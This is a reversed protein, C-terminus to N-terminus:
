KQFAYAPFKESAGFLKGLRLAESPREALLCFIALSTAEL